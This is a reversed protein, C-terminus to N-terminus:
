KGNRYSYNELLTQQLGTLNRGNVAPVHAFLEDLVDALAVLDHHDCLQSVKYRIRAQEEDSFTM